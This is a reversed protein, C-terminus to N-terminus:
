HSFAMWLSSSKKEMNNSQSCSSTYAVQNESNSKHYTFSFNEAAHDTNLKRCCLTVDWAQKTRICIKNNKNSLHQLHLCMAHLKMKQCVCFRTHLINPLFHVATQRRLHGFRRHIFEICCCFYLFTLPCIHTIKQPKLQIPSCIAM